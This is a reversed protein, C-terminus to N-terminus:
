SRRIVRDMAAVLDRSLQASTSQSAVLEAMLQQLAAAQDPNGTPSGGPTSAAKALLDEIRKNCAETERHSATLLSHLQKLLSDPEPTDRSAVNALSSVAGRCRKITSLCHVLNGVRFNITAGEGKPLEGVQVRVGEIGRRLVASAEDSNRREIADALRIARAQDQALAALIRQSTESSRDNEFAKMFDPLLLTLKRQIADLKDAQEKLKWVQEQIADIKQELDAKVNKLRDNLLASQEAASNLQVGLDRSARADRDLRESEKVVFQDLKELAVAAAARLAEPTDATAQTPLVFGLLAAGVVIGKRNM